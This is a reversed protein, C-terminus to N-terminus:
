EVVTMYANLVYELREVVIGTASVSKGMLSMTHWKTQIASFLVKSIFFIFDSYRLESGYKLRSKLPPITYQKM